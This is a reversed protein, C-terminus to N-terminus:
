VASAGETRGGIPELNIIDDSKSEVVHEVNVQISPGRKLDEVRLQYPDLRPSFGHHSRSAVPANGLDEPFFIPQPRSDASNYQKGNRLQQRANLTALLSNAYLKAVVFHLGIFVRNQPMDLWFFLTAITAACTISGNQITWFTLMDLMHITSSCSYAHAANDLGYSLKTIMTRNKRLFYCLSTTIMIDVVASISLGFTLVWSPFPNLLAAYSQLRIIERMSVSASVLRCSALVVIPIVVTLKKNHVEFQFRRSSLLLLSPYAVHSVLRQVLFTITATLEVAPGISWPINDLVDFDGYPVIISDWLAVAVLASHCLDLLWIAIVLSKARYPEDSYLRWYVIFQMNVCGSLSFALLGGILIAGYDQTVNVTAM